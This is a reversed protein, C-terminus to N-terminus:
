RQKRQSCGGQMYIATLSDDRLYIKCLLSSCTIHNAGGQAFSRKAAPRLQAENRVRLLVMVTIIFGPRPAFFLVSSDFTHSSIGKMKLRHSKSFYGRYRRLGSQKLTPQRNLPAASEQKGPM